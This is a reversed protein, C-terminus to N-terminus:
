MAPLIYILYDGPNYGTWPDVADINQRYWDATLRSLYGEEDFHFVAM